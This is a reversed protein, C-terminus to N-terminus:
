QSALDRRGMTSSATVSSRYTPTECIPMVRELRIRPANAWAVIATASAGISALQNPSSESAAVDVAATVTSSVSVVACTTSPSSIGFDSASCNGVCTARAVTRGIRQDSVANRGNRASTLPEAVVTSRQAPM